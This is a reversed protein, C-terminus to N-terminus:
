LFIFFFILILLFTCFIQVKFIFSNFYKNLNDEGRKEKVKEKQNARPSRLPLEVKPLVEPHLDERFQEQIQDFYFFLLSVLLEM